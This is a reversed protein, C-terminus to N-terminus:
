LRSQEYECLECLARCLSTGGSLQCQQLYTNCSLTDIALVLTHLQKNMWCKDVHLTTHVLEKYTFILHM